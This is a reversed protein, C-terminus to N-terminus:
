VILQPDLIPDIKNASVHMHESFAMNPATLRNLKNIREFVPNSILLTKNIKIDILKLTCNPDPYNKEANRAVCKGCKLKMSVLTVVYM